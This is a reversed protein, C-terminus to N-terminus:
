VVHAMTPPLRAAAVNIQIMHAAVRRVVTLTDARDGGQRLPVVIAGIISARMNQASKRLVVLEDRRLSQRKTSSHLPYKGAAAAIRDRLSQMETISEEDGIRLRAVERKIQDADLGLADRVVIRIQDWQEDSYTFLEVEIMM